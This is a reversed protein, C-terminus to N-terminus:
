CLFNTGRLDAKYTQTDPTNMIMLELFDEMEKKIEAKDWKENLNSNTLKWSVTLKRNNRNNNMDM